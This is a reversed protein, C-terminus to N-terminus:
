RDFAVDRLHASLAGSLQSFSQFRREDTTTYDPTRVASVASMRSYYHASIREVRVITECIAIMLLLQEPTRMIIKYNAFRIDLARETAENVRQLLTNKSTTM